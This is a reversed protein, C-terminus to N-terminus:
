YIGKQMAVESAFSTGSKEAGRKKGSFIEWLHNIKGPEVIDSASRLKISQGIVFCLGTYFHYQVLSRYSHFSTFVHWHKLHRLPKSNRLITSSECLSVFGFSCLHQSRLYSPFIVNFM